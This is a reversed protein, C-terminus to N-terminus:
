RMFVKLNLGKWINKCTLATYNGQLGAHQQCNNGEASELAFQVLDSQECYGSLQVTDTETYGYM